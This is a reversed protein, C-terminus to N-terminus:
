QPSPKPAASQDAFRPRAVSSKEEKQGIMQPEINPWRPRLQLSERDALGAEGGFRRSAWLIRACDYDYASLVAVVVVLMCVSYIYYINLYVQWQWIRHQCIGKGEYWIRDEMIWHHEDLCCRLRSDWSGCDGRLLHITPPLTFSSTLIHTSFLVSMNMTLLNYIYIHGYIYLYIYIYMHIIILIFIYIYTHRWLQRYWENSAQIQEEFKQIQPCPCVCMSTYFTSVIFLNDPIADSHQFGSANVSFM